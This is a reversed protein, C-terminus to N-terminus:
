SHLPSLHLYPYARSICMERCETAPLRAEFELLFGLCPIPSEEWDWSNRCELCQTKVNEPRMPVCEPRMPTWKRQSPREAMWSRDDHRRDKRITGWSLCEIWRLWKIGESRSKIPCVLWILPFTYALAFTCSTSNIPGILSFSPVYNCLVSTATSWTACTANYKYCIYTANYKYDKIPRGILIFTWLHLPHQKCNIWYM